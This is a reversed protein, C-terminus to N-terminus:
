FPSVLSQEQRKTTVPARGIANKPMNRTRNGIKEHSLVTQVTYIVTM